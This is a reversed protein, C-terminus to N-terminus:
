LICLYHTAPTVSLTIVDYLAPSFWIFPLKMIQARWCIRGPHALWIAHCSSPMYCADRNTHRTCVACRTLTSSFCYSMWIINVIIDLGCCVQRTTAHCLYSWFQVEADPASVQLAWHDTWHDSYTGVRKANLYVAIQGCEANIHKTHIESCVANM